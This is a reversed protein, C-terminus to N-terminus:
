PIPCTCWGDECNDCVGCCKLFKTHGCKSCTKIDAPEKGDVKKVVRGLTKGPKFPFEELGSREQDMKNIVRVIDNVKQRGSKELSEFYDQAALFGDRWKVNLYPARPTGPYKKYYEWGKDFWDLDSQTQGHHYNEM